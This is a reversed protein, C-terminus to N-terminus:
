LMGGPSDWRPWVNCWAPATNAAGSSKVRDPGTCSIWPMSIITWRQSQIEAPGAADFFATLWDSLRCLAQYDNRAKASLTDLSYLARLSDLKQEKFNQYSFDYKSAGSACGNHYDTIEIRDPGPIRNLWDKLQEADDFTRTPEARNDPNAVPGTVVPIHNGTFPDWIRLALAASEAIVRKSLWVGGRQWSWPEFSDGSRFFLTVALVATFALIIMGAAIRIILRTKGM